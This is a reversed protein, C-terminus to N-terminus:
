IKEWQGTNENWNYLVTESDDPKAVPAEWQYTEENLIWSHFPKPKIFADRNSDYTDGAGAFNKRFNANYSTQVWEGGFLDQLFEIGLQEQEVLDGDELIINNVVVVQLVINNSDIEAFHAM